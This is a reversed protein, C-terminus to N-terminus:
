AIQEGGEPNEFRTLTAEVKSGDAQADGAEETDKAKEEVTLEKGEEGCRVCGCAFRWGRALEKRRRRRCESASEGAHQAVDVFAVTLEDGEKLDREALIHIEATGASFSPRVSPTCSHNLYSSVTYIASGIQRQTGHPTRTKEVEEPRAAPEPRDDRGGDFCVGYANYAMKGSLTAHREDTVFQELGPLATQLVDVLLPLQEQPPVVELYRLREMHDALQYDGEDADTYDVKGTAEGRIGSADNVMKATEAAVQRAIFRSVLLPATREQGQLYM